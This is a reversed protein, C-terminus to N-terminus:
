LILLFFPLSGKIEFNRMSQIDTERDTLKGTDLDEQGETVREIEDTNIKM